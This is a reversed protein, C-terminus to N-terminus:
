KVENKSNKKGDDKWQSNHRLTEKVQYVEANSTQNLLRIMYEGLISFILFVVGNSLSVLVVFTTWGPVPVGEILKKVLYYFGLIFSLGSIAGGVISVFRLPYSSYNFLIRSVLELIKVLNYQSKGEVRREHKVQVNAPNDSFMLALGTIYPYVTRYSCIRDVVDRRLIRLNSLVLDPPKQFLQRNLAGVLSSGIRRFWPHKKQNFRGFVLDHGEHAKQILHVVEEPPNQLDDDLTIVYNGSSNHFGCLLATHQGYNRLLNISIIRPNSLASERLIRWSGDQSGDNVLILEYEWHYKEFCAVTRAITNGVISESNYVPIVVSYRVSKVKQDM